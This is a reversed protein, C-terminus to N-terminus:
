LTVDILVIYYTGLKENWNNEIKPTLKKPM